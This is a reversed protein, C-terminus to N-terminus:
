EFFYLVFLGAMLASRDDLFGRIYALTETIHNKVTSKSLGLAAAIEEHNMGEFRSLRFIKQKQESLKSLAESILKSSENLDVQEETTNQAVLIRKYTEELLRRDKQMKRIHDVTLNRAMIFIYNGPNDTTSLVTRNVWIKTFIEQVLEETAAPVKTMRLVFAYLKDKYLDFIVRFAAEDGLSIREFLEQENYTEHTHM